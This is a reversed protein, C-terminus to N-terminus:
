NLTPYVSFVFCKKLFAKLFWQDNYNWRQGGAASSDKNDNEFWWSLPYTKRDGLEKNIYIIGRKPSTQRQLHSFISQPKRQSWNTQPFNTSTFANARLFSVPSTNTSTWRAIVSKGWLDWEKITEMRRMDLPCRNNSFCSFTSPFLDYTTVPSSKRYFLM